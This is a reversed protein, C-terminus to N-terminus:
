RRTDNPQEGCPRCSSRMDTVTDALDFRLRKNGRWFVTAISYEIVGQLDGLSVNQFDARYYGLAEMVNSPSTYAVQPLAVVLM